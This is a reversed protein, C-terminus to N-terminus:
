ELLQRYRRAPSAPIRLHFPYRQDNVRQVGSWLVPLEGIRGDATFRVAELRVAFRHATGDPKTRLIGATDARYHVASDDPGITLMPDLLTIRAVQDRTDAWWAARVALRADMADTRAASMGSPDALVRLVLTAMSAVIALLVLALLTELLTFAPVRNM